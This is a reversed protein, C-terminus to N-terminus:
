SRGMKPLTDIREGRRLIGDGGSEMTVEKRTLHNHELFAQLEEAKALAADYEPTGKTLDKTYYSIVDSEAGHQVGTLKNKKLAEVVERYRAPSLESGDANRLFVLDIDGAYPVHKDGVVAYLKGNKEVAKGETIMKNVAARHDGYEKLRTKYRERVLDHLEKPIKSYDPKRPKFYGVLGEDAKSAGLYTDFHNITKTKIDLPKPVAKGDRIWRMSEINTTRSTIKIKYQKAINTLERSQEQTYGAEHLWNRPIEAGSPLNRIWADPPLKGDVLLEDFPVVAAEAERRAKTKARLDALAEPDAIRKGDSARDAARAADSAKDVARAADAARDAARAVRAADSLADASRAMDQVRDFVKLGTAGAGYLAGGTEFIGWAVRALRESLPTDKDTAKKWNEAGLVVKLLGAAAGSPDNEAAAYLTGAVEAATEIGKKMNGAVKKITEVDGTLVRVGDVASYGITEALIRWNELDSLEEHVKRIGNGFADYLEGPVKSYDDWVGRTYEDLVTSWWDSASSKRISDAELLDQRKEMADRTKMRKEWEAWKAEEELRARLREAAAQQEKRTRESRKEASDALDAAAAKDFKRRDKVLQDAYWVDAQAQTMWIATQNEEDWVSVEERDKIDLRNEIRELGAIGFAVVLGIAAAIMAREIPDDPDDAFLDVLDQDVDFVGRTEGVRGEPAGVSGIVQADPGFNGRGTTGFVQM